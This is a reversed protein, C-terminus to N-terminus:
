PQSSTDPAGFSFILDFARISTLQGGSAPDPAADALLRLKHQGPPLVLAVSHMRPDVGIDIAGAPHGDLTFRLTRAQEFSALRMTVTAAVPTAYPNFMWIEAQDGMWRWRLGADPQEELGRWGPGLMGLAMVPWDRPIAYAELDSDAVLPAGVGLENLLARVDAFYEPKGAALKPEGRMTTLDLTVYRIRYAALARRGSEPWGPSVIDGPQARGTRLENVGSTYYAFEYLPPRAVYGAFIPWKHVIQDVMHDIRNVNVYMPLAMLAGDPPPLTAYWPHVGRAQVVLREREIMGDIGVVAIILAAAGLLAGRPRLRRLLRATGWAALIAVMLITLVAMHSPRQGIRVGPLGQILMFPLPINTQIGAFRLMPGMALLMTSLLLAGWRWSQRWAAVLGIIALPLGVMGLSVNWFTLLDPYRATRWERIAAGWLPHIPSPLFFDILDASHEVQAQRMDWSSQDISSNVGSIRPALVLAWVLLPALGWALLTAAPRIRAQWGAEPTASAGANSTGFLRALVWIGAMCGTFLVAILGYYWAGLSVWLLAAAAVLVRWWRPQELLAWLAYVYMPLWHLATLEISGESMKQLHYPSLVYITGAVLAGPISGTLRRALLFVAYGGIVFSSLVTFNVGAVPGLTLTLPVAVLGQTFGLTQWFLDIGEPYYLLDTRFPSKGHTLAEAVWWQHWTHQYSDVAEDSGVLGRTFYMPLPWSILVALLVFLAIAALHPAVRQQASAAHDHELPIARSQSNASV